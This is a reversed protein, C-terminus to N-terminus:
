QIPRQRTRGRPPLAASPDSRRDATASSGECARTPRAGRHLLRDCNRRVERYCECSNAVLGERDIIEIHGRSCRVLRADQLSRAATTVSNRQIGLMRAVFDQTLPLVDGGSHDAAHLLWRSLRSTVPHVANCAASQQAQVLLAQEHRQLLMRIDPNRAAASRVHEVELVSAIGPLAVIAARPSREDELAASVGLLSERGVMAVEVTEGGALNVVTSIAGSHPFYAHTFLDGDEVLSQRRM